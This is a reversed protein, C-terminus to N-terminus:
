RPYAKEWVELAGYEEMLERLEDITPSGQMPGHKSVAFSGVANAFVASDRLTLGKERACIFAANFSDGAGTPDVPKVGDFTPVQYPGEARSAVTCGKSGQKICVVEPGMELGREIAKEVSDTEFYVLAEEESPMFHRAKKIFSGYQSKATELSMLEPRFNTDFSLSGGGALIHDIVQVGYEKWISKEGLLTGNIHIWKSKPLGPLEFEPVGDFTVASYDSVYNFMRSGDSRYMVFAIGTAIKDTILVHDLNVGDDQMRRYAVNRGFFDDGSVGIFAANLGLRAATSITIASAGSPYPGMIPYIEDLPMDVDPRIFEVILGGLSIIDFM